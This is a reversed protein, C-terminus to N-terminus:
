ETWIHELVKPDVELPGDIRCTGRKGRIQLEDLRRLAALDKKLRSLNPNLVSTLLEGVPAGEVWGKPRLAGNERVRMELHYSQWEQTSVVEGLDSGPPAKRRGAMWIALYIRAKEHTLTVQWAQADGDPCGSRDTAELVYSYKGGADVHRLRGGRV